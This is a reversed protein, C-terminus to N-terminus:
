RPREGNPHCTHLRSISPDQISRVLVHSSISHVVPFQLFAFRKARFWHNIRSRPNDIVLANAFIRTLPNWVSTWVMNTAYSTYYTGGNVVGEGNEERAVVSQYTVDYPAIDQSEAWGSKWVNKLFQRFSIDKCSYSRAECLLDWPSESFLPAFFMCFHVIMAIMSGVSFFRIDPPSAPKEGLTYM